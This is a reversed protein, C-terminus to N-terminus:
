RIRSSVTSRLARGSFVREVDSPPAIVPMPSAGIVHTASWGVRDLAHVALGCGMVGDDTMGSPVAYAMGSSNYTYEMEQLERHLVSDRLIGLAGSAIVIKLRELLDQKSRQTFIFPDLPAGRRRLEPIVRDGVGTADGMGYIGGTETVIRDEIAEWPGHQVRVDRSQQGNCDLGVGYSWDLKRGIDWGWVRTPNKSLAPITCREIEALGFPNAGSETPICLYLENFADRPLQRRSARVEKASMVGGAVADYATILHFSAEPEDGNQAARALKYAWNNRGRINGIIRAEAETATITSRLAIWSKEPVRSAEDVVLSAVDEGFLADDDKTTKFSWRAGNDFSIAMPAMPANSARWVGAPLNARKLIKVVRRYAIAAHGYSPAAWWHEGESRDSLVKSLQWHICGTTKGAKTCAEILSFRTPAYVANHQAEYLQPLEIRITAM